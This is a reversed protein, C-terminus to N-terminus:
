RNEFFNSLKENMASEVEYCLTGVKVEVDCEDVPQNNERLEVTVKDVDSTLVKFKFNHSLNNADDFHAQLIRKYLQMNM